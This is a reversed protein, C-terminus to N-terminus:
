IEIMTRANQESLALDVENEFEMIDTEMRDIVQTINLPDVFTMKESERKSEAMKEATEVIDKNTQTDRGVFGEVMRQINDELQRNYTELKNTAYALDHKLSNLLNKEYEISAKREIADAVTYERGAIQVTTEANSKVIASKLKKRQEILDKISQFESKINESYDEVTMSGNRINKEKAKKIEIFQSQEIKKNIKSDLLKLNQLARTISIKGM